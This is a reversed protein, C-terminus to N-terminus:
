NSKAPNNSLSRLYSAIAVGLQEGVAKFGNTTGAASNWATEMTIAVTQPNGHRYVWPCSLTAWHPGPGDWVPKAAVTLPETVERSITTFLQDQNAAAQAGIYNTPTLWLNVQTAGAGPNHLDIMLDMRGEKALALVGKEVAAVELFHPQASWDQNPDQPLCEKGGDGTAVDDVDMIPVLFVEANQRVWQAPESKGALWEALGANVWTGGVEWAHQRAIIWVGHRQTVPKDGEIFRVAPAQRGERSVTLTFPKVFPHTSALNSIFNSADTPGFPPGWAIWVTNSPSTIRYTTTKGHREGPATRSWTRGDSSIAACKPLAWAPALKRAPKNIMAPLTADSATVKVELPLSPNVGDVRFYWWCPWGRDPNGGPEIQISQPNDSLALVHASASEFNTSVTLAAEGRMTTLPLVLAAAFAFTKAAFPKVPTLMDFYDMSDLWDGSRGTSALRTM